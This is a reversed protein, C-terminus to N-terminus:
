ATACAPSVQNLLGVHTWNLFDPSQYANAGSETGYVLRWAQLKDSWWATTPDRGPMAGTKTSIVPNGKYKTWSILDPDSRNTPMAM